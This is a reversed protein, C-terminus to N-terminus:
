RGPVVVIDALPSIWFLGGPTRVIVHSVYDETDPDPELQVGFYSWTVGIFGANQNAVASSRVMRGLGSPVGPPLTAIKLVPIADPDATATARLNATVLGNNWAVTALADPTTVTVWGMLPPQALLQSGFVESGKFTSRFMVLNGPELVAM